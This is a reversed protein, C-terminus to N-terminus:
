VAAQAPANEERRAMLYACLERTVRDCQAEWDPDDDAPRHLVVTILLQAPQSPDPNTLHLEMRVPEPVVFSQAKKGLGLRSLFGGSEQRPAPRPPRHLHIGIRGPASEVVEGGIAPLSGRIKMVAIREPMWATLWSVFTNEDPTPLEPGAEAAPEPEPGADILPEDDVTIKEGLAQEYLEALERASQPRDKPDKRLCVYVAEQLAFPVDGAGVAEFSPPEGYVHAQLTAAITDRDFPRTGTLLEFLMVGVSYLDGRHDMTDGRIEEPCLYQPTGTLRRSPGTFDLLAFHMKGAPQNAMKALGLDLLKVTEDPSDPQAIMVNEPKLDRYVLGKAHAAHLVSCLQGLLRGVRAPSLRGHRHLLDRLSVGAVFELVLYPAPEEDLVAEYLAVAFRHRFRALFQTERQFLDQYERGVLKTPDMVKIAVLRDQDLQEALYVRSMGGEGVLRLIRYRDRLVHGIM